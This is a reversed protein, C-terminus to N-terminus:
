GTAEKRVHFGQAYKRSDPADFRVPVVFGCEPVALHLDKQQQQYTINRRGSYAATCICYIPGFSGFNLTSILCVKASFFSGLM